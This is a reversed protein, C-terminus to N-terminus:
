LVLPSAGAIGNADSETTTVCFDYQPQQSHLARM